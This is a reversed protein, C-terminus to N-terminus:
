PPLMRNSAFLALNEAIRQIKMRPSALVVVLPGFFGGFTNPVEEFITRLQLVLVRRDTIRVSGMVLFPHPRLDLFSGSSRSSASSVIMSLMGGSSEGASYCWDRGKGGFSMRQRVM